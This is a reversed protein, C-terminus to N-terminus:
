GESVQASIPKSVSGDFAKAIGLAIEDNLSPVHRGFKHPGRSFDSVSPILIM